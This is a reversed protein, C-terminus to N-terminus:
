LGFFAQVGQWFGPNTQLIRYYVFALVFVAFIPKLPLSLKKGDVNPTKFLLRAIWGLKAQTYPPYRIGNVSEMALDKLMVAKKHSFMDFTIKGHYAGTGSAGVGGFPLASVSAHMLTDNGIFGGSSTSRMIKDVIAKNNSFAYLALPKDRKNVFSIAEDISGVNLIPLLPGFIEQQMIPSSPDVDVILTPAIYLDSEDTKGGVVVKGGANNLLNSLRKFHNANVIRSLSNSKQPDTGYFEEIAKKAEAVFQDRLEPPVLVYDPSICTQGCNIFRGWVIRRAAVNMNVDRDIIAPSKGGLELTVPCLHKAAAAMIIKAVAGNGTYLIHDFKQELLATTEAVAGNIVKYARKDLYKPLLDAMLQASYPSVESPKIVAANGAAIAGVLGVLCLQYPYNWAGIILVVGLPEPFIRCGDLANILPVEPKEPKVWEELNDLAEAIDSNIMALESLLCEEKPKRLDKYTAELMAEKNEDVLKYLQALQRRRFELPQTVGEDFATRAEQVVKCIEDVPTYRLNAM